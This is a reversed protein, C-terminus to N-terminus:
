RPGPTRTFGFAFLGQPRPPVAPPPAAPPGAGDGDGALEEDEAAGPDLAHAHLYDRLLRSATLAFTANPGAGNCHPRSCVPDVSVPHPHAPPPAIGLATLGPTTMSVHHCEHLLWLRDPRDSSSVGRVRVLPDPVTSCHRSLQLEELRRWWRHGSVGGGGVCVCVCGVCVRPLHMSQSGSCAVVACTKVVEVLGPLSRTRQLLGSFPLLVCRAMGKAFGWVAVVPLV